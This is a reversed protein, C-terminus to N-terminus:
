GRKLLGTARTKLNLLATMAREPPSGQPPLAGLQRAMEAGNMYAENSVIRGDEVTLLDFGEVELEAGNPLLGEFSADGTFSGTARWRVAAKGDDAVIELVEFAFDPFATFLNSFWESYTGPATLVAVGHINGIGGPKWLAMMGDVDRAAIRGFYERAVSEAPTGM